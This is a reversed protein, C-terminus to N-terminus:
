FLESITRVSFWSNLPLLWSRRPLRGRYRIEALALVIKRM